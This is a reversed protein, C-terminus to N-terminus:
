VPSSHTKGVRTRRFLSGKMLAALTKNFRPGEIDLEQKFFESWSERSKGPFFEGLWKDLTTGAIHFAAAADARANKYAEGICIRRAFELCAHERLTWRRWDEFPSEQGRPRRFGLVDLCREPAMKAPGAAIKTVSVASKVLYTM